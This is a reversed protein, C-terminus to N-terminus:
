ARPELAERMNCVVNNINQFYNLFIQLKVSIGRANKYIQTCFARGAVLREGHAKLTHTNKARLHPAAM